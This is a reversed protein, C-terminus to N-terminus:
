ARRARPARRDRIRQGVSFAMVGYLGAGALLLAILGFAGFWEAIVREGYTVSKILTGFDRVWYLPVDADTDHM